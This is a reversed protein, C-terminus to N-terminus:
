QSAILANPELEKETPRFVLAQETARRGAAPQRLAGVARAAGPLRKGLRRPRILTGSGVLEDSCGSKAIEEGVRMHGRRSRRQARILIIQRHAGLSEIQVAM